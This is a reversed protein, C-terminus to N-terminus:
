TRNHNCTRLQRRLSWLAILIVLILARIYFNYGSFSSPTSTSYGHCQLLQLLETAATPVIVPVIATASIGYCYPKKIIKKYINISCLNQFIILIQSSSLIQSSHTLPYSSIPKVGFRNLNFNWMWNLLAIKIEFIVWFKM